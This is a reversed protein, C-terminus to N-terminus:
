FKTINGAPPNPYKKLTEKDAGIPRAESTETPTEVEPVQPRSEQGSGYGALALLGFTVLSRDSTYRDSFISCRFWFVAEERLAM